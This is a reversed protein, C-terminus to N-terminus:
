PMVVLMDLRPFQQSLAQTSHKKPVSLTFADGRPVVRGAVIRFPLDDLITLHDRTPRAPMRGKGMMGLGLVCCPRCHTVLHGRFRPFTLYVCTTHYLSYELVLGEDTHFSLQTQICGSHNLGVVINYQCCHHCPRRTFEPIPSSSLVTQATSASIRQRSSPDAFCYFVGPQSFDAVCSTLSVFFHPPSPWMM